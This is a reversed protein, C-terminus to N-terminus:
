TVYSIPLLIAVCVSVIKRLAKQDGRSASEILLATEQIHPTQRTSPIGKKTNGKAKVVTKM